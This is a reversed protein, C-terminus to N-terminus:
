FAFEVAVLSVSTRKFGRVWVALTHYEPDLRTEQIEFTELFPAATIKEDVITKRFFKNQSKDWGGVILRLSIGGANDGGAVRLRLVQNVGPPIPIAMTGAAGKDAGADERHGPSLAQTAGIRFEPLREKGGGDEEEPGEIMADPRFPMRLWGKRLSAHLENATISEPTVSRAYRTQSYDIGEEKIRAQSDLQVTALTVGSVNIASETVIVVAYSSLRNRPAKGDGDPPRDEEYVLHVTLRQNPVVNTLEITQAEQLVLECGAEDLAFGPNVVVSRPGGRTVTLGHVVGWGHMTRCHRRRADIHYNQEALFDDKLLLQGHYYSPRQEIVTRMKEM